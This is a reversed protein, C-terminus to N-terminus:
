NLTKIRTALACRCQITESAVALPDGPFRLKGNLGQFIEGYKKIVGNLKAHSDRTRDDKTAVWKRSLSKQNITGDEIAQAYLEENGMNVGRLAETRAIVESRYKIYRERYRKVMKDIQNYDLPINSDISNQITTDFRRDRLRRDLAQSNGRELLDRYNDVSQQQYATLGISDRFNIAQEIPNLGRKAGSLLAQKVAKKQEEKFNRVLELRNNKIANVARENVVDFNVTVKLANSLFKAGSAGTTTYILAQEEVIEKTNVLIARNLAGMINNSLILKEIRLLSGLSLKAKIVALLFIRRLRPEFKEILAIIRTHPDLIM